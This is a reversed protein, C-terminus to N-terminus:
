RGHWAGEGHLRGCAGCRVLMGSARAADLRAAQPHAAGYVREDCPACLRLLMTCDTGACHWDRHCRPCIHTHDAM